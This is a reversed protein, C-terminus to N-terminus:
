ASLRQLTLPPLALPSVPLLRGAVCLSRIVDPLGPPSGHRVIGRGDATLVTWAHTPHGPLSAICAGEAVPLPHLMAVVARFLYPRLGLM